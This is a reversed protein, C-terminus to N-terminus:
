HNVIASMLSRVRFNQPASIELQDCKAKKKRTIRPSRLSERIDPLVAFSNHLRDRIRPTTGTATSAFFHLTKGSIINADVSIGCPLNM